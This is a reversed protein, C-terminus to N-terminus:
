ALQYAVVILSTTYAFVAIVIVGILDLLFKYKLDSNHNKVSKKAM